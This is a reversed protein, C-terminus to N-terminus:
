EKANSEKKSCISKISCQSIGFIVQRKQIGDALYNLIHKQHPEMKEGIVLGVICDMIHDLEFYGEKDSPILIRYEHESEWDNSKTFYAYDVYDQHTKIFNLYSPNQHIISNYFSTLTNKSFSFSQSSPKYCVDKMIADTYIEKVKMELKEKDVIFCVGDYQSYQAWMRPLAFGRGIVDFINVSSNSSDVKQDRCFCLLKSNSAWNMLYKEFFDKQVDQCDDFDFDYKIRLKQETTDNTGSLPSFRFTEFYLIKIAKDFTTYHYLYKESDFGEKGLAYWLKTQM